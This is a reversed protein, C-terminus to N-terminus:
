RNSSHISLNIATCKKTATAIDGGPAATLKGKLELKSTNLDIYTKVRGEIQCDIPAWQIIKALPALEHVMEEIVAIQNMLPEFLYKLSGM